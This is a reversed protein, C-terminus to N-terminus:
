SEEGLTACKDIKRLLLSLFSSLLRGAFKLDEGYEGKMWFLPNCAETKRRMTHVKGRENIVTEKGKRKKEKRQASVMREKM